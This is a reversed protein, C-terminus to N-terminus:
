YVCHSAFICFVIGGFVPLVTGQRAPQGWSCTVPLLPDWSQGAHPSCVSPARPLPWIRSWGHNWVMTCHSREWIMDYTLLQMYPFCFQLVWSWKPNFKYLRSPGKDVPLISTTQLLLELSALGQKHKLYKDPSMTYVVDQAHSLLVFPAGKRTWLRPSLWSGICISSLTVPAESHPSHSKTLARPLGFWAQEKYRIYDKYRLGLLRGNTTLSHVPATLSSHAYELDTFNPLTALIQSALKVGSTQFTLVPTVVFRYIVLCMVSDTYVTVPSSQADVNQQAQPCNQISTKPLLKREQRNPTFM